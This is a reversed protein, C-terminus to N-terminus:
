RPATAPGAKICAILANCGDEAWCAYVRKARAPDGLCSMRYIQDAEDGTVAREDDLRDRLQKVLQPDLALTEIDLMMLADACRAGRPMTAECKQDDTMAAFAEPSPPDPSKNCGALALAVVFWRM